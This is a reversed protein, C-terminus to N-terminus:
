KVLNRRLNKGKLWAAKVKVADKKNFGGCIPCKYTNESSINESFGCFECTNVDEECVDVTCVRIGSSMLDCEFVSNMHKIEDSYGNTLVIMSCTSKAYELIFDSMQQCKPIKESHKFGKVTLGIKADYLLLEDYNLVNVALINKIYNDQKLDMKKSVKIKMFVEDKDISFTASSMKWSGDFYKCVNKDINLNGKIRGKVTSLSILTNDALLSYDKNKWFVIDERTCKIFSNSMKSNRNSFYKSAVVACISVCIQSTLNYKKRLEKYALSQLKSRSVEGGHDFAIKSVYNMANEIVNLTHVFLVLQSKELGINITVSRTIKM